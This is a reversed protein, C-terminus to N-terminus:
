TAPHRRSWGLFASAETVSGALSSASGRPAPRKSERRPRLGGDVPTDILPRRDAPVLLLLGRSTWGAFLVGLLGGAGAMLLSETLLQRVLRARGAGLSLRLAFERRRAMARSLLLVAVNACAILLVLAVMGMLLMLPQEYAARLSDIGGGGPEFGIHPAKARNLEPLADAAFAQFMADVRAQAERETVAPKQRAMGHTWWYGRADLLSPTNAPRFGWPVLEARNLMPVWIDPV